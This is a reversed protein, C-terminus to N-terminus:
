SSARLGYQPAIAFRMDRDNFKAIPRNRPRVPNEVEAKGFGLPIGIGMEPEIHGVGRAIGPQDAIM